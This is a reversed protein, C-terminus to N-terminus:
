TDYCAYCICVMQKRMSTNDSRACEVQAKLSTVERKHSASMDNMENDYQQILMRIDQSKSGMAEKLRAILVFVAHYLYM